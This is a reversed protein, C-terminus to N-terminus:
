DKMEQATAATERVEDNTVMTKGLSAYEDLDWIYGCKVQMNTSNLIFRTCMMRVIIKNEGVDPTLFYVAENHGCNSCRAKVRPM